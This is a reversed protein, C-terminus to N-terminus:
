ETLEYVPTGYEDMAKIDIDLREMARGWAVYMFHTLAQAVAMRMDHEAATSTTVHLGEEEFLDELIPLWRRSRETPVLVLTRGKGGSGPGFLPHAGIVEVGPPAYKLMAEMPAKKLSSLDMLLSGQRMRPAVEAAIEDIATMPVSLVVVDFQGAEEPRSVCVSM